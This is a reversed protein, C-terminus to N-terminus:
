FNIRKMTTKNQRVYRFFISSGRKHDGTLRLCDYCNRWDSYTPMFPPSGAKLGCNNVIMCTSVVNLPYFISSTVFASVSGFYSRGERESILYRGVLYTATSAAIVCTVDFILRPIVGSFYGLIGEDKYIQIISGIISNYKTEKGVFQAMMRISIVHFPSSIIAGAAHVVVSRKLQKEFRESYEEDSMEDKEEDDIKAMGLKDAIRESFHTSLMNGVLKPSLGRFCGYFGDVTKIHSVYQCINPLILAPKGFITRTQRPPIPEHGIQILVKAYELPHLLSQVGLRLGFRVWENVNEREEDKTSITAKSITIQPESNHM